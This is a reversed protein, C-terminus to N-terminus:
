VVSKRDETGIVVEGGPVRVMTGAPSAHTAPEPLPVRHPLACPTGQKLQLTQLITENHQYEHQLVMRIVYGNRLLPTDAHDLDLQSLRDLVASRVEALDREADARRPLPLAERSARPNRFPDYMGRLGESGPGAGEINELLWVEEFHAIHGLDWVIPSMLPSHQRRLDDDDLAEVLRLTGARAESLLREAETRSLTHAAQHDM